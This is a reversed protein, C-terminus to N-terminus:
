RGFKREETRLLNFDKDFYYRLSVGSWYGQYKLVTEVNILDAIADDCSFFQDGNEELTDIFKQLKLMICGKQINELM